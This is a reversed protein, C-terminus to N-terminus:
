FDTRRHSHDTKKLKFFEAVETLPGSRTERWCTKSGWHEAQKPIHAIGNSHSRVGYFSRHTENTGSYLQSAQGLYDRQLTSPIVVDGARSVLNLHFWFSNHHLNRLSKRYSCFRKILSTTDPLTVHLVPSRQPPYSAVMVELDRKEGLLLRLLVTTLGTPVGHCEAPLILSLVLLWKWTLKQEWEALGPVRCELRPPLRERTSSYKGTVLLLWGGLTIFIGGPRCTRKPWTSEASSGERWQPRDHHLAEANPEEEKWQTGRYTQIHYLVTSTPFRCRPEGVM